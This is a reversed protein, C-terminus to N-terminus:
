QLLSLALAVAAFKGLETPLAGSVDVESGAPSPSPEPHLALHKQYAVWNMDCNCQVLDDGTSNMCARVAQWMNCRPNYSPSYRSPCSYGSTEWESCPQTSNGCFAMTEDVLELLEQEKSKPICTGCNSWVGGVYATDPNCCSLDDPMDSLCGRNFATFCPDVLTTKKFQHNCDCNQIRSSGLGMSACQAANTAYDDGVYIAVKQGQTCGPNSAFHYYTQEHDEEVVYDYYPQGADAAGRLVAGTFDCMDFHERDAMEYVNSPPDYTFRVLACTHTFVYQETGNVRGEETCYKGTCLVMERHPYYRGPAWLTNDAFQGTENDTIDKNLGSIGEIYYGM